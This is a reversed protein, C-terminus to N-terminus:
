FHGMEVALGVHAAEYLEISCMCHQTANVLLRFCFRKAQLVLEPKAAARPMSFIFMVPLLFM